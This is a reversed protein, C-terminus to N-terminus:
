VYRIRPDLMIYILDTILNLVSRVIAVLLVFGMVTASDSGQMGRIAWFGVGPFAFVIEVLIAGSILGGLRLGAITVIPILANRLAHWAIVTREHLGKARAVNVFDM